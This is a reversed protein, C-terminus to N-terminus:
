CPLGGTHSGSRRGRSELLSVGREDGGSGGGNSGSGCNAAASLALKPVRCGGVAILVACCEPCSQRLARRVFLSICANTASHSASTALALSISCIPGSSASITCRMGSGTDHEVTSTSPSHEIICSM